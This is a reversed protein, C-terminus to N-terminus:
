PIFQLIADRNTYSTVKDAACDRPLWLYERHESPNLRVPLPQPLELCFVHETNHRTGPAYRHRWAPKIPFQRSTRCDILRFCHSDIGTEEHLERRATIIPDSEHWELSGTVSQWFAKPRVRRLLLVERTTTYVVVLVSEPRKFSECQM